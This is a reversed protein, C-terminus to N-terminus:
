SILVPPPPLKTARAVGHVTARWAGRGRSNGLCSYQLPNDNGEGPIKWIWPHFRPRRREYTSEESSSDGPFKEDKKKSRSVGKTVKIRCIQTNYLM